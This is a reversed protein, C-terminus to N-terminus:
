GGVCVGSSRGSRSTPRSTPSHDALRYSRLQDLLTNGGTGMPTIVTGFSSPLKQGHLRTLEPKPDFTDHHTLGGNLWVLIASRAQASREAGQTRRLFGPLTLGLGGLVGAERDHEWRKACLKQFHCRM